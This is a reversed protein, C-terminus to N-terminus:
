TEPQRPTLLEKVKELLSANEFPKEVLLYRGEHVRKQTLPDLPYGTLVIVKVAPDLREAQVLMEAGGRAPMRLDTILLDFQREKFKLLGEEGNKATEVRYGAKTLIKQLIERLEEEDDVILIRNM